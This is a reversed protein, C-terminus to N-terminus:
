PFPLFASYSISYTPWLAALAMCCPLMPENESLLLKQTELAAVQMVDQGVPLPTTRDPAPAGPHQSRCQSCVGGYHETADTWCWLRHHAASSLHGGKSKPAGGMQLKQIRCM